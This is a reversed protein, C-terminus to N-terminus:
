LDMESCVSNEQSPQNILCIYQIYAESLESAYLALFSHKLYNLFFRFAVNYIYGILAKETFILVVMLADFVGKMM